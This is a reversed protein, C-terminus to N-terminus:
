QAPSPGPQGAEIPRSAPRPRDSVWTGILEGAVVREINGERKYNFVIIPLGNDRCMGIAAGDMVKLDERMVRDFALSEYLAAHPNKEPDASYVGDVRTAKLVVDVELEKGRLAAATDTTVFPSGTGAALIIVRGRTLHTLARRRIYPEAVEEMRIPTMLRTECGLGELADQLALGNIVTAMMGMYHGTTEKIVGSGRALTAGRLINGGGVVIALEIGKRAVRAAQEAIKSVEDPNIGTEGPRSFSEGSLKLLVRRFQSSSEASPAPDM